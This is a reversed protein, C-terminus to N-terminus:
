HLGATRIVYYVAWAGHQRVENASLLAVDASTHDLEVLGGYLTELTDSRGRLTVFRMCGDLDTLWMHRPMRAAVVQFSHVCEPVSRQVTRIEATLQNLAAVNRADRRFRSLVLESQLYSRRSESESVLATHLRRHELGIAIGLALGCVVIATLPNRLRERQLFSSVDPLHRASSLYNFQM